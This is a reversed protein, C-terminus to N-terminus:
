VFEAKTQKVSVEMLDVIEMLTQVVQLGQLVQLVQIDAIAQYYEQEELDLIVVMGLVVLMDM